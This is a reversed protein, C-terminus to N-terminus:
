ESKIETIRINDIGVSQNGGFKNTDTGIRMKIRYTNYNKNYTGSYKRMYIGNSLNTLDTYSGNDSKGQIVFESLNVGNATGSRPLYDFSIDFKNVYEPLEIEVYGYFPKFQPQSMVVGIKEGDTPMTEGYGNNVSNRISFYGSTTVNSRDENNEWSINQEFLPREKPIPLSNKQSGYIKYDAIANFSLLSTLSLLLLKKM